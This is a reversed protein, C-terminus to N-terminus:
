WTNHAGSNEEVIDLRNIGDLTQKVEPMITKKSKPNIRMM